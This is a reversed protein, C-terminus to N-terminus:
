HLETYFQIYNMVDTKTIMGKIRHDIMVVLHGLNYKTMQKIAESVDKDDDVIENESVSKVIEGVTTHPWEEKPFAKIDNISMVGLIKNSHISSVVPFRSFRYKMFYDDVLESITTDQTVTVLEENLIDKVKIGKVSSDFILQRYSMYAASQIFWGIFALWLGNFYYQTFFLFIGMAMLLFGFVRGVTSAVFTARKLNGTAKWVISRLVRGGDLPYGPILNFVGLIINIQALYAAPEGVTPFNRTFYWLVGFIIGIIFSTAPGIIAMAFEAAPTEPEHEIEAMGGFIWLSIRSVNIGRKKAVLSHSIEHALVSFFFLLVTIITILALIGKNINPLLGPFYSFGFFYVLIAFIIFWSYDLRIEIGAIRFLKISSRFM